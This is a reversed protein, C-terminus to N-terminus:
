APCGRWATVAQKEPGDMLWGVVEQGRGAAAPHVDVMDGGDAVRATALMGIGDARRLDHGRHAAVADGGMQALVPAMDAVLIQRANLRRGVQRQVEFHGRRVLHQGDRQAV